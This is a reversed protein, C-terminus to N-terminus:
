LLHCHVPLELTHRQWTHPHTELHTFMSAPWPWPWATANVGDDRRHHVLSAGLTVDKPPTLSRDKTKNHKNVRWAVQM